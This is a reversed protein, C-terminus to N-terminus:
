RGISAAKEGPWWNRCSQRHREEELERVAQPGGAYTCHLTSLCPAQNPIGCYIEVLKRTDLSLSTILEIGHQCISEEQAM